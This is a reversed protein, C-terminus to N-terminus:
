LDSLKYERLEMDTFGDEVDKWHYVRGDGAVEAFDDSLSSRIFSLDHRKEASYMKHLTTLLQTEIKADSQAASVATLCFLAIVPIFVRMNVENFYQVM